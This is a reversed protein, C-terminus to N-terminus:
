NVEIGLYQRLVPLYEEEVLWSGGDFYFPLQTLHDQAKENLSDMVANGMANHARAISDLVAEGIQGSQGLMRTVEAEVPELVDLFQTWPDLPNNAEADLREPTDPPTEQVVVELEDMFDEALSITSSLEYVMKDGLVTMSKKNISELLVPLREAEVALSAQIQSATSWENNLLGALVQRELLDLGKWLIRVEALDTLLEREVVTQSPDLMESVVRSEQHLSAVRELDLSIKVPEPQKPESVAPLFAQDLETTLAVPLEIGSLRASFKQQRRLINEAYKMISTIHNALPACIAYDRGTALRTFRPYSFGILASIFVPKEYPHVQDSVFKDLLSKGTTRLYHANAVNIAKVYAQDVLHDANYKQYFKNRPQYNSLLSWVKYPLAELGNTRIAKEVLTNIVPDPIALGDIKLINEWWELAQGGGVKVALLDGGWDPLYRDLNPYKERYALWLKYLLFAAQISDPTEVLNLIEYVHLFIYSLDTPPSQGQRVLARWYFYWRQQAGTMDGYTPWYCKFPVHNAFTESRNRNKQAEKVFSIGRNEYTIAVGRSPTQRQEKPPSVNVFRDTEVIKQPAPTAKKKPAPRVNQNIKTPFFISNILNDLMQFPWLVLSVLCCGSNNKKRKKPM